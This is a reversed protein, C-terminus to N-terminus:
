LFTRPLRYRLLCQWYQPLLIATIPLFRGHDKGKSGPTRAVAVTAVVLQQLSTLASSDGIGSVSTSVPPVM